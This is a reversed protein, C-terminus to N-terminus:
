TFPGEDGFLEIDRDTFFGDPWRDIFEGDDALRLPKMTTLGNKDKKVYVVSVQEANLTRSRAKGIDWDNGTPNETQNTERIRRLLRLLLHESHSELLFIGCSESTNACKIFVDALQAQLKPHLHLEPQQIHVNNRGTMAQWCGFLVPIVQSIGMGVDAIEVRFNEPQYDLYLHVDAPTKELAKQRSTPDLKIFNSLEDLDLSFNFKVDGKIAYGTELFDRSDLIGNVFTLAHNGGELNEGLAERRIDDALEGWGEGHHGSGGAIEERYEPFPRLPPVAYIRYSDSVWKAPMIMFFNLYEQLLRYNAKVEDSVDKDEFVEYDDYDWWNIPEFSFPDSIAINRITLWCLSEDVIKEDLFNDEFSRRSDNNFWWRILGDLKDLHPHYAPHRINFGIGDGENTGTKFLPIGNITLLSERLIWEQKPPLRCLEAFHIQYDIKTGREFIQELGEHSNLWGLDGLYQDQAWIANFHRGWDGPIGGETTFVVDQPDGIYGESLPREQRNRRAHKDLDEKWNKNNEGSLTRSLFEFADVVTSKGASNPGYFLTIPAIPIETYAGIGQFNQLGIKMNTGNSIKKDTSSLSTNNAGFFNHGGTGISNQSPLPHRLTSRPNPYTSWIGSRDFLTCYKGGALACIQWHDKLNIRSSLDPCELASVPSYRSHAM